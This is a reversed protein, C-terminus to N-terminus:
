LFFFDIQMTLQIKWEGSLNDEIILDNPSKHNNIM